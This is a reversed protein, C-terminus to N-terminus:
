SKNVKFVRPWSLQSTAKLVLTILLINRAQVVWQVPSDLSFPNDYVPLNLGLYMNAYYRLTSDKFWMPIVLTNLFDTAYLLTLDQLSTLPLYLLPTMLVLSQPPLSPNLVISLLTFSILVSHFGGGGPREGLLLLMYIVAMYLGVWLGYGVRGALSSLIIALGNNSSNEILYTLYDLLSGPSALLFLIYPTLGLLVPIYNIQLWGRADLYVLLALPVLLFINVSSGLALMLASYTTKRAALCYLSSVLFFLTLTDLSYISYAILSPFFLSLLRKQIPAEIVRTFRYYILASAILFVIEVFSQLLYFVLSAQPLGPKFGLANSVYMSLSALFLYLPPQNLKYDMYPIPFVQGGECVLRMVDGNVWGSGGSCAGVYLGNYVSQYFDDYFPAQVIQRGFLIGSAEPPMHIIFSALGIALAILFVVAKESL